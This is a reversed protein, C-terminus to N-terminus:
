MGERATLGIASKLRDLESGAIGTYAGYKIELEKLRTMEAEMDVTNGDPRESNSHVTIEPRIGSFATVPLHGPDTKVMGGKMAADRGSSKLATELVGEFEVTRAKYNPTGYNAINSGSYITAYSVFDLTKEVARLSPTTLGFVDM